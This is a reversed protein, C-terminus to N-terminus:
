RDGRYANIGKCFKELYDLREYVFVYQTAKDNVIAFTEVLSVAYLDTIDEEQWYGGEFCRPVPGGPTTACGAGPLALLAM